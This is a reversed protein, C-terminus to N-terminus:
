QEMFCNFNHLGHKKLQQLFQGGVGGNAKIPLIVGEMEVRKNKGKHTNLLAPEVRLIFILYFPLHINDTNISSNKKNPQPINM